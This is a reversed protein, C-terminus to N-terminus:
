NKGNQKGKKRNRNRNNQQEKHESRKKFQSCKNDKVEQQIRGEKAQRLIKCNRVHRVCEICNAEFEELQSADKFVGIYDVPRITLEIRPNSPDYYIAQARECVVNDDEWILKTNTITDLLVKWYNNCDMRKRPFYFIADVYFHQKTDCTTEWGQANVERIIIDAFEKQFAKAEATKYPVSLPKGKRIIARYGMYHNVSPPIPSTIHLEAM